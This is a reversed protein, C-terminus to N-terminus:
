RSKRSRRGDSGRIPRVNNPREARESRLEVKVTGTPGNLHVLAKSVGLTRCFYDITSPTAPENDPFIDLNPIFGSPGIMRRLHPGEENDQGKFLPVDEVHCGHNEVLCRKLEANTPCEHAKPGGLQPM